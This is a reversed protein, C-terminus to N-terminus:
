RRSKKTAVSNKVQKGFQRMRAHREAVTESNFREERQLKFYSELRRPELEESEIAAQVACGPEQHHACDGFKCAAALTEIDSFFKM